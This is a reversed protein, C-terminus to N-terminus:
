RRRQTRARASGLLKEANSATIPYTAGAGKKSLQVYTLTDGTVASAYESLVQTIFANFDSQLGGKAIDTLNEGTSDVEDDMIPSFLSHSQSGKGRRLVSHKVVAATPFAAVDGGASGTGAATAFAAPLSNHGLPYVRVTVGSYAAPYRPQINTHWADAVADAVAQANSLDIGPTTVALTSKFTFTSGTRKGLYTGYVYAYYVNPLVPLPVSM